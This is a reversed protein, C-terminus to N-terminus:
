GGCLSSRCSPRPPSQRVLRSEGTRRPLSSSPQSLTCRRRQVAIHNYESHLESQLILRIIIINIKLLRPTERHPYHFEILPDSVAIRTDASRDFIILYTGGSTVHVIYYQRCRSRVFLSSQVTICTAYM